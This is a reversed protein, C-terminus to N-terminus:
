RFIIIKNKQSFRVIFVINMNKTNSSIIRRKPTDPFIIYNYIFNNIYLFYQQIITPIEFLIMILLSCFKIEWDM